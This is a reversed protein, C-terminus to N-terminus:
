KNGGKKRGSGSEAVLWDLEAVDKQVESIYVTGFTGVGNNPRNLLIGLKSSDESLLM